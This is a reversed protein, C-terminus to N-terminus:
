VLCAARPWRPAGAVAGPLRARAGRAVYVRPARSFTAHAFLSDIFKNLEMMMEDRDIMRRARRAGKRARRDHGRLNPYLGGGERQRAWLEAERVYRPMTRASNCTRAASWTGSHARSAVPRSCSSGASTRRQARAAPNQALSARRALVGHARVCWVQVRRWCLKPVRERALRQVRASKEHGPRGQM